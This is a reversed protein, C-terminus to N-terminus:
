MEYYDGLAKDIRSLLGGVELLRREINPGSPRKKLGSIIEENIGKQRILYEKLVPHRKDLLVPGYELQIDSYSVPSKQGPYVKMIFYFKGDEFVADEDAIFLGQNWLYRRLEGIESQPQLILERVGLIKDTSRALIEKMLLGGMGAIVVSDDKTVAIDELGNSLCVTIKSDLGKGLIHTRAIDCPGANVDGAVACEAVGKEVLYMPIYAHDTGVDVVRRGPSVMSAVAELRKSLTIM